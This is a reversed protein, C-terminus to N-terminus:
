MPPQIPRVVTKCFTITTHVMLPLVALERSFVHVSDPSDGEEWQLSLTARKYRRAKLIGTVEDPFGPVLDLKRIGEECLLCAKNRMGGARRGWTEHM